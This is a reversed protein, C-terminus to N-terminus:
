CIITTSSPEVSLVPQEITERSFVTEFIGNRFPLFRGDAQIFNPIQKINRLEDGVFTQPNKESRSVDVNVDGKPRFGCGVDLTTFRQKTM